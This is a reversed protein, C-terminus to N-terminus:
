NKIQIETRKIEDKVIKSNCALKLIYKNLINLFGTLPRIVDMYIVVRIEKTNNYVKHPYNDDWLVGVGETWSYKKENVCLFVNEKDKPVIIPIMYRMIGKYYGVHIPIHVGEQLVSISCSCIEPINKLIKVLFPFHKHADASYENGVKINIIRWAKIIGNEHIINSGIYKNQGNFTDNTMRLKDGNDTKSLISVVENKLLKFNDPDEFLYNNKFYKDKDLFEPTRIGLTLISSMMYLIEIPNSYIRFIFGSFFIFSIFLYYQNNQIISPAILGISMFFLFLNILGSKDKENFSFNNKIKKFPHESKCLDNNM